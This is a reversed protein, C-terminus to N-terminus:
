SLVAAPCDRFARVPDAAGDLPVRVELGGSTAIASRNLEMGNLVNGFGRDRVTLRRAGDSLVHRDTTITLGFPGLFAIAFAPADPWTGEALTVTIAYEPLAPDYTVVVEATQDQHRLTCVPTPSFEWALAPTSLLLLATLWRM